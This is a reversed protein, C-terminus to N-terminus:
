RCLQTNVPRDIPAFVTRPPVDGVVHFNPRFQGGGKLFEFKWNINAQLAQTTIGLSFLEILIFLFDVMLKGILRLHVTYTAELGAL